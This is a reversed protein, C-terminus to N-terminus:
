MYLEDDTEASLEKISGHGACCVILLHFPDNHDWIFQDIKAHLAEQPSVTPITFSEVKYNFGTSFVCGLDHMQQPIDYSKIHKDEWNILLVFAATYEWMPEWM